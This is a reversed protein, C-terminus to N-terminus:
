LLLLLAWLPLSVEVNFHVIETWEVYAFCSEQCAKGGGHCRGLFCWARILQPICVNWLFLCIPPTSTHTCKFPPPKCCPSLYLPSLFSFTSPTHLSASPHFPPFLVLLLSSPLPASVPPIHKGDPGDPAANWQLYGSPSGRRTEPHRACWPTMMPWDGGFFVSVGSCSM